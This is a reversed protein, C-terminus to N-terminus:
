VNGNESCKPAGGKEPLVRNLKVTMRRPSTFTRNEDHKREESLM